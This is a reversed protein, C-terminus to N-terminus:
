RFSIQNILLVAPRNCFFEAEGAGALAEWGSQLFSGGILEGVGLEEFENELVFEVDTVLPLEPSVGM